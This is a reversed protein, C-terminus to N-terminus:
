ELLSSTLVLRPEKNSEKDGKNPIEISDKLQIKVM